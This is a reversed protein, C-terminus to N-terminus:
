ANDGHDKGTLSEHEDGSGEVVSSTAESGDKLPPPNAPDEGKKLVRIHTTMFHHSTGCYENCLVLYRGPTSFRQTVQSVHGPLVMVNVNSVGPIQFGHVVDTSAIQFHVDVDEPVVLDARPLFGFAYAVSVASWSGDKNEFTGPKDFPPTLNVKGPAVQKMGHASMTVNRFATIGSLVAFVVLMGIGVRLWIKEYRELPEFKRETPQVIAEASDPRADEPPPTSM